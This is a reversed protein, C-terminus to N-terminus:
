MGSLVIVRGMDKIHTASILGELDKRTADSLPRTGAAIPVGVPFTVFVVDRSSKDAFERDFPGMDPSGYDWVVKWNVDRRASFKSGPSHLEYPWLWRKYFVAIEIRASTLTTGFRALFDCDTSTKEKWHMEAIHATIYSNQISNTKPDATDLFTVSCVYHVEYISLPGNNTIVFRQSFVESPDYSIYPDITIEQRAGLLGYALTAVTGVIGLSAILIKWFRGIQQWWALIRVIVPTRIVKPPSAIPPTTEATSTAKAPCQKVKQPGRKKHRNRM